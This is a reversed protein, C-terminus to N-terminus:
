VWSTRDRQWASKAEFDGENKKLGAGGAHPSLLEVRETSRGRSGRTVEDGERASEDGVLHPAKTDLLTNLQGARNKAKEILGLGAEHDRKHASYLYALNNMALVDDPNASLVDKYLQIAADYNGQLNRVAALPQLM